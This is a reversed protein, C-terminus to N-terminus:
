KKRYESGYGLGPRNDFKENKYPGNKDCYHMFVQVQMLGQLEERWHPLECGRYIIADGPKMSFGKGSDRICM